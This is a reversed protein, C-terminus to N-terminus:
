SARRNDGAATEIRPQVHSWYGNNKHEEQVWQISANPYKACEERVM